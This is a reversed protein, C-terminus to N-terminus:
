LDSKSKANSNEVVNIIVITVLTFVQIIKTFEMNMTNKKFHSQYKIVIWYCCQAWIKYIKFIYPQSYIFSLDCILIQQHYIFKTLINFTYYESFDVLVSSM